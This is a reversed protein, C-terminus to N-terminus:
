RPGGEAPKRLTGLQQTLWAKSEQAPQNACRVQYPKGSLSSATAALDIFQETNQLTGRKEVAELKRLLHRKADRGDHWDGNRQFQCGSSELRNLLADIEARVPAPTPGAAALGSFLAGAACLLRLTLRTSRMM